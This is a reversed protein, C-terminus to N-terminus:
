RAEARQLFSAFVENFGSAFQVAHGAGPLVAREAALRRELVDCVAEYAPHYGGSCVLVPFGADALQGLPVDAEWPPEEAMLARVGQEDGEGITAPVRGDPGFMRSFGALFRAPDPENAIVAAYGALAEDVPPYGRAVGFCPPEIVTLSRVADPRVAAALLAIVGGYSFGALHAGDGLLEAMEAAQTDLDIAELPPNPPYGPRDPVVLTFSEALRRQRTWTVSNQVSGHVLVAPPGSGTRRVHFAV